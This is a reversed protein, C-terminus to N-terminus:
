KTKSSSLGAKPPTRVMFIESLDPIAQGGITRDVSRWRATTPSVYTLFQTAAITRGDALVGTAKIMWENKERLSWLGESYGGDHDFVWSKFQGTLPDWGIRQSGSLAPQGAVHLTFDRIIYNKDDSWRCTTHVVGRENEDVWDGLMWELEKLRDHPTLPRDPYEHVLTQLWRGNQRALLASYRTTEPTGGDPPFTRARGTERALDPGLFRISEPTLELKAGRALEFGSAFHEIIAERGRVTNGSEDTVEADETFLAAVAAPDGKNFASIFARGVETIAQSDEPREVPVAQPQAAALAAVIVALVTGQVGWFVGYRFTDPSM